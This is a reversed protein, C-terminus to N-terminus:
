RYLQESMTVAMVASKVYLGNEAQEYIVSRPGDMVEDTAEQERLVPLVHTVIGKKDMLDTLEQTLIWNKYQNHIQIEKEVGFKSAGVKLLEWSAWSRPFVVHAGEIASKLDTTEEFAGGSRDANEKAIKAIEPDINFGPPHAVVVDMGFRTMILAEEQISCLGRLKSAYGWMIVYKKRKIDGLKERVTMLDQMGQTPHFSCCAMNIVPIDAHRAYEMVTARGLGYKYDIADDLCRIGMGHGYREYMKAVDKIAEGFGVRLTSVDIYTGHGGLLSAGSEFAARTRTSPAYFIAFFSKGELLKPLPERKRYKEKLEKALKLTEEIEEISWDQTSILDRGYLNVSISVM